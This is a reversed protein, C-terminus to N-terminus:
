GTSRMMTFGNWAAMSSVCPQSGTPRATALREESLHYPDDVAHEAGVPDLDLRWEESLVWEPAADEERETHAADYLVERGSKLM